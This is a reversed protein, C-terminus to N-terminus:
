SVEHSPSAHRKQFGILFSHKWDDVYSFICIDDQSDEPLFFINKKALYETRGAAWCSQTLHDREM